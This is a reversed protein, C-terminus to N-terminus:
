AQLTSYLTYLHTGEQIIGKQKHANAWRNPLDIALFIFTSVIILKSTEIEGLLAQLLVMSTFIAIIMYSNWRVYSEKVTLLAHLRDVVQDKTEYKKKLVRINPCKDQFVKIDGEISYKYVTFVLGCLILIFSIEIPTM